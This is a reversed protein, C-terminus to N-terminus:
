RCAVTTDGQCLLVSGDARASMDDTVRWRECDVWRTIEGLSCFMQRLRPVEMVEEQGEVEM